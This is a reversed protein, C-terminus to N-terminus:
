RLQKMSPPPLGAPEKREPPPVKKPKPRDQAKFQAIFLNKMHELKTPDAQHKEPVHLKFSSHYELINITTQLDLQYEKSLAEASWKTRDLQHKEILQLAQNLSLKGKPTNKADESGWYLDEVNGRNKPLKSATSASPFVSPNIESPRPVTKIVPNDGTSKLYVKKLKQLAEDSPKGKNLINPDLSCCSLTFIIM